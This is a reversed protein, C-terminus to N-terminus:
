ALVRCMEFEDCSKTARWQSSSPIAPEIRTTIHRVDIHVRRPFPIRRERESFVQEIREVRNSPRDPEHDLRREHRHQPRAHRVSRRQLLMAHRHKRHDVGTVVRSVRVLRGFPGVRAGVRRDDVEDVAGHLGTSPRRSMCSPHELDCRLSRTRFVPTYYLHTNAHKRRSSSGAVDRTAGMGEKPGEM